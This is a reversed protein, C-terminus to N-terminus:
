KHMVNLSEFFKTSQLNVTSITPTERPKLFYGSAGCRSPTIGWHLVTPEWAHSCRADDLHRTTCIHHIVSENLGNKIPCHKLWLWVYKIKMFNIREGMLIADGNGGGFSGCLTRPVFFPKFILIRIDPRIKIIHKFRVHNQIEYRKLIEIAISIKLFQMATGHAALKKQTCKYDNYYQLEESESFIRLLYKHSYYSMLKHAQEHTYSIDRNRPGRFDYGGNTLEIIGLAMGVLSKFFKGNSEAVDLGNRMQGSIILITDNM